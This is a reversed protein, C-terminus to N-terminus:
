ILPENLSSWHTVIFDGLFGEIVWHESGYHYTAFACGHFRGDSDFVRVLVRASQKHFNRFTDTTDVAPKINAPNWDIM